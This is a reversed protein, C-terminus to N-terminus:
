HTVALVGANVFAFCLAVLSGHRGDAGFVSMFLLKKTRKKLFSRREERAKEERCLRGCWDRNRGSRPV